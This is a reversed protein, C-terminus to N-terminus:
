PATDSLELVVLLPRHDSAVSETLVQSEIVRWQKAPRYLVFDIQRRPKVSPVTPTDVDGVIHWERRLEELVRSNRTSNLDGVLLAPVRPFQSGFYKNIARASEFREEDGPRADLHTAALVFTGGNPLELKAILVGRQERRARGEEIHLSPLALNDHIKMPWKSLIANGYGGGEHDINKGFASTRNTLRGLETTQDVRQTRVTKDDVEQLAVVDPEVANIIAAIRTLDIVGDTGEGHHINYCLVRIRSPTAADVVGTIVLGLLLFLWFKIRFPNPRM